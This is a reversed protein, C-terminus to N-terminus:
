LNRHDGAEGEDPRPPHEQCCAPRSGPSCTRRGSRWARWTPPWSWLSGMARWVQAGHSQWRRGPTTSPRREGGLHGFAGQPLADGQSNERSKVVAKIDMGWPFGSGPTTSAPPCLHFRHAAPLRHRLRHGRVGWLARHPHGQGRTVDGPYAPRKRLAGPLAGPRGPPLAPRHPRGRRRGPVYGTGPLVGAPEGPLPHRHGAGHGGPHRHGGGGPPDPGRMPGLDVVLDNPATACCPGPKWFAGAGMAEALAAPSRLAARNEPTDILRGEPYFRM